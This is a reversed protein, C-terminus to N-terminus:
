VTPFKSKLMALVKGTANHDFIFVLESEIKSEDKDVVDFEVKFSLLVGSDQGVEVAIAQMISGLMDTAIDPVSQMVNLGLFQSFTAIVAGSIVNGAETLASRDFEDLVPLQKKHDATLYSALKLASKAPLSLMMVGNLDGSLKLLVVTKVEQADRIMLPTKEIFDLFVQVPKILVRRDQIMKSLATAAKSAGINIVEGLQDKDFESLSIDM